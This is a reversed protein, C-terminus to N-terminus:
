AENWRWAGFAEIGGYLLAGFALAFIIWILMHMDNNNPELLAPTM